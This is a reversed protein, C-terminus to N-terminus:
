YLSVSIYAFWHELSTGKGLLYDTWLLITIKLIYIYKNIQSHPIKLQLMHSRIGQGPISGPGGVNPACLRLGQVLLSIGTITDKSSCM